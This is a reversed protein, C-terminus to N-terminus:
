WTVMAGAGGVAAVGLLVLGATGFADAASQRGQATAVTTGPVAGPPSSATQLEPLRAGRAREGRGPDAGGRRDRHARLEPHALASPGRKRGREPCAGARGASAGPAPGSRAPFLQEVAKRVAALLADDSKGQLQFSAQRKVQAARTEVLQLSLLYTSGFRALSGTLLFDVGLAGGIEALCSTEQCGLKSKQQEFGIMSRIEEASVVTARPVRRRVEIVVDDTIGEALEPSVGVRSKVDLVAIRPAAASGLVLLLLSLM